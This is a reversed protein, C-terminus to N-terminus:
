RQNSPRTSGVGHKFVLEGGLWGGVLLGLFGLGGCAVTLVAATGTPATSPRLWILSFGFCSVVALMLLMHNTATKEAPHSEGLAVYDVLGAAATPLAMALGVAISWFAFRWWLVQATCCAVVEWLLATSFLGLPLDSLM